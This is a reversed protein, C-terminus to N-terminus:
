FTGGVGLHVGAQQTGGDGAPVSPTVSLALDKAHLHPVLFGLAGGVLLGGLVDTPFHRGAAVRGYATAVSLGAGTAGVVWRWPSSPHRRAFTVSLATTAAAVTSTHGSPFGLRNDFSGVFAGETYQSPRPRRVAYKFIDTVFATLATAEAIVLTDALMDRGPSPTERVWSEVGLWGLAGLYSALAAADTFLRWAESDRGVGYRDVEWLTQPDCRGTEAVPPCSLGGNLQPKVGVHLLLHLGLALGTVTGDAAFDVEYPSLSSSNVGAHAPTPVGVSAWLALGCLLRTANRM